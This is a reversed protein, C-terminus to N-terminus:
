DKYMLSLKTLNQMYIITKEKNSDSMNKIKSRLNNITQIIKDTKETNKGLNKLEDTYDKNVFFDIDGALIHTEYKGIVYFKWVIILTQPDLKSVSIVTNKARLLQEEDPFIRQVDSIFDIFHANFAELINKNNSTSSM